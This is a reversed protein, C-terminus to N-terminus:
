RGRGETAVVAVRDDGGTPLGDSEFSSEVTGNVGASLVVTDLTRSRMAHVNVAYRLGWPDAGVAEQLYPGRWGFGGPTAPRTYTGGDRVLHDDLRGVADGLPALWRVTEEGSGGPVAGDSVLLDYTAWGGGVHREAATETTFRILTVSLTRVDQTVRIHKAREVYDTVAPATAGTLISMATLVSVVETM